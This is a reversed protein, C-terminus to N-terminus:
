IFEKAIPYFHKDRFYLHKQINMTSLGKEEETRIRRKKLKREREKAVFIRLKSSVQVAVGSAKNFVRGKYKFERTARESYNSFFFFLLPVISGM